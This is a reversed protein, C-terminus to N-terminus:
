ILGGMENELDKYSEEFFSANPGLLAYDFRGGDGSALFKKLAKELRLLYNHNKVLITALIQRKDMHIGEEKPGLSEMCYTDGEHFMFRIWSLGDFVDAGALYYLPTTVPDLSGFIHIPADVKEEKMGVRIRAINVMREMLSNGLEKETFGVIDFRCLERIHNTVQRVDVRTARMTQPKVLIERLVEGSNRFLAKAHKIQADIKMRERPHDYSVVVVPPHKPFSAAVEGHMTRDWPRTEPRYLGSTAFEEDKACEYGGSDLFVLSPFNLHPFRKIHKVDYCSVLIPGRILGKVGEITNKVDVNARSSFSPVLMPTEGVEMGDLELKMHRALM